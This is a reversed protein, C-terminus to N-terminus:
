NKTNTTIINSTLDYDYKLLSAFDSSFDRKVANWFDIIGILRKTEVDILINNENLDNHCFVINNKNLKKSEIEFDWFLWFAM